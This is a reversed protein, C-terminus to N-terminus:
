RNTDPANEQDPFILGTTDGRTLKEQKKMKLNMLFDDMEFMDPEKLAAAIIYGEARATDGLTEYVKGLNYLAFANSDLDTAEEFFERAEEYKKMRVHLLGLNSWVSSVRPYEQLLELYITKAQELKDLKYLCNAEGFKFEPDDPWIQAFDRYYRLATDYDEQLMAEEAPRLARKYIEPHAGIELAMKRLAEHASQYDKNEMYIDAIDLRANPDDPFMDLYKEFTEIAKDYEQLLRHQQGIFYLTYPKEPHYKRLKEMHFDFNWSDQNTFALSVLNVRPEYLSPDATLARSYYKVATDTEGRKRAINGLNTLVSTKDPNDELPRKYALEALKLIEAEWFINGIETYVSEPYNFESRSFRAMKAFDLTSDSEWALKYFRTATMYDMEAMAVNGLGIYAVGPQELHEIFSLVPDRSQAQRFQYEAEAFDASLLAKVGEKASRITPDEAFVVFKFLLILIVISVAVVLITTGTHSNKRSKTMQKRAM